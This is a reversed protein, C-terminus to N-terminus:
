WELVLKLYGYSKEKWFTLCKLLDLININLRLNSFTFIQQDCYQAVIAEIVTALLVQLQNFRISLAGSWEFV